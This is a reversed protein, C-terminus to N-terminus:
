LQVFEGTTCGTAGPNCTASGQAYSGCSCGGTANYGVQCVQASSGVSCQGGFATTLEGLPILAPPVYRPKSKSETM